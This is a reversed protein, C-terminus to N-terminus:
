VIDGDTMYSSLGSLQADNRVFEEGESGGGQGM